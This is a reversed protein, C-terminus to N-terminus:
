EHGSVEDAEAIGRELAAGFMQDLKAFQEEQSLVPDAGPARGIPKLCIDPIPLYCSTRTGGGEEPYLNIRIPEPLQCMWWHIDAERIHQQQGDPM